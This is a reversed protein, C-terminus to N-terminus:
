TSSQQATSRAERAQAPLAIRQEAREGDAILVQEVVAEEKELRLARAHEILVCPEDVNVGGVGVGERLRAPDAVVEVAIGVPARPSWVRPMM